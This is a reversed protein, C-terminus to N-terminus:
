TRQPPGGVYIEHIKNILKKGLYGTEWFGMILLADNIFQNVQAISLICIMTEQGSTRKLVIRTWGSGGGGM